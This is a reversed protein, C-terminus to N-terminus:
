AARRPRQALASSTLLLAIGLWQWDRRLAANVLAYGALFAFSLMLVIENQAPTLWRCLALALGIGLAAFPVLVAVCLLPTAIM